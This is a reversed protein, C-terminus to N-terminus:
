GCNKAIYKKSEKIRSIRQNDDMRVTKGNKDRYYVRRHPEIRALRQRHQACMREIEARTERRQTRDATIKERRADAASLPPGAEKGNANDGTDTGPQSEGPISGTGRSSDLHTERFEVVQAEQKDPPTDSYNAIGNKDTWNYVERAAVSESITGAMLAMVCTYLVVIRYPQQQKM